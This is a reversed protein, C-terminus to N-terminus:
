HRDQKDRNKENCWWKERTQEREARSKIETRDRKQGESLALRHCAESPTVRPKLIQKFMAMFRKM